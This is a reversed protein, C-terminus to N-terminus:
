YFDDISIDVYLNDKSIEEYLNDRFIYEKPRIMMHFIVPPNTVICLVNALCENM